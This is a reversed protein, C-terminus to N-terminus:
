TGDETAELLAGWIPQPLAPDDLKVSLYTEESGKRTRRWAAGIEAAGAFIRFDPAGQGEKRDNAVLRVKTAVTLTRITGAYGDKIASFTGIVPM